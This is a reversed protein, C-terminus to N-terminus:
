TNMCKQVIPFSHFNSFILSFSFRRKTPHPPPTKNMSDNSMSFWIIYMNASKLTGHRCASHLKNPGQYDTFLNSGLRFINRTEFLCWQSVSILWFFPPSFYTALQQFHNLRTLKIKVLKVFLTLFALKKARRWIQFFFFIPVAVQVIELFKQKM